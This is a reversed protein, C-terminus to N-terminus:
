NEPVLKKLVQCPNGTAIVNAPIDKTVVSNAGIVVNDGITVGKLIIANLGLWVNDGITVAKPQGSRLDEPHWDFDTIFTNAGGKFNNGIKISKYCGIVTGSFGCNNGIKINALSSHTSIMCPRNIGILNINDTESVFRCNDGIEVLGGKQKLVLITKGNFKCNKGLIIKNIFKANFYFVYTWFGTSLKIRLRRLEIYNLKM